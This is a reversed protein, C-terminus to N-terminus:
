GNLQRSHDEFIATEAKFRLRLCKIKLERNDVRDSLNLELILKIQFGKYKLRSHYDFFWKMNKEKEANLTIKYTVIMSHCKSKSELYKLDFLQLKNLKLPVINRDM